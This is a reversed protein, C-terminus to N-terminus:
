RRRFQCRKRPGTRRYRKTEHSFFDDEGASSGMTLNEHNQDKNSYDEQRFLFKWKPATETDPKTESTCLGDEGLSSCM